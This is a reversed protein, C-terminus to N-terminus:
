RPESSVLSLTVFFADDAPEVASAPDRPVASLYAGALLAGILARKGSM